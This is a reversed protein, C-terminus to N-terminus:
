RRAAVLFAGSGMAIDAVQLGLIEEARVLRWQLRDATQLPGPKYVLPELAGEAIVQVLDPPTHHTGSLARLASETVCLQGPLIVVPDGRLDRRILRYFPLLRRLSLWDIHTQRREMGSTLGRATAVTWGGM